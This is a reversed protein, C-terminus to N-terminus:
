PAKLSLPRRRFPVKRVECPIIHSVLEWYSDEIMVEDYKYGRVIGYMSPEYSACKYPNDEDGMEKVFRLKTIDLAVM